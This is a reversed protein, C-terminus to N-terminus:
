KKQYWHNTPWRGNKLTEIDVSAMGGSGTRNNVVTHEVRSGRLPRLTDVIGAINREFSKGHRLGAIVQTLTM